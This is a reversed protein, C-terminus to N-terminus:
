PIPSITTAYRNRSKKEGSCWHSGKDDAAIVPRGGDLLALLDGEARVGHGRGQGPELRLVRGGLHDQERRAVPHLKVDCPRDLAVRADVLDGPEDALKVPDRGFFEGVRKVGVFVQLRHPVQEPHGARDVRHHEALRLDDALGALREFGGPRGAGRALPEVREELLGQRDGLVDVGGRADGGATEADAARGDVQGPLDEGPEVVLRYEHDPGAFHALHGQDVQQGGAGLPDPDGVARVGPRDLHGLPEAAAPGRGDLRDGVRLPDVPQLLGVDDDGAGARVLRDQRGPAERADRGPAAVPRDQQDVDGQRPVDVRLDAAVVADEEVVDVVQLRHGLGVQGLPLIGDGPAVLNDLRGHNLVGVALRAFIDPREDGGQLLVEVVDAPLLELPDEGLEGVARGLVALLDLLHEVADGLLQEVAGDAM